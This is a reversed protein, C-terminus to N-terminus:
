RRKDFMCTAGVLRGAVSMAAPVDKYICWQVNPIEALYTGILVSAPELCNVNQCHRIVGRSPEMSTSKWWGHICEWWCPTNYNKDNIQHIFFHSRM